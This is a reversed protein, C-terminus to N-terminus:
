YGHAYVPSGGSGIVQIKAASTGAPDIAAYQLDQGATLSRHVVHPRGPLLGQDEAPVPINQVPGTSHKPPPRLLGAQTSLYMTYFVLAGGDTTKLAFMPYPTGELLWQYTQRRATAQRGIAANAAYLGTTQPGAAVAASAPSSPGDDAVAAHLPGVVNPRAKLTQDLISLSTAYGASDIAVKPAAVGPNLQVSGSLAWTSSADRKYFTMLATRAPGGAAPRVPASAMFWLPYAAQKAVYVTPPGYLMVPPASGSAAAITFASSVISYAADTTQSLALLENRDALAVRASTVYANFVQAAAAPTPGIPSTTAAANIGCGQVSLLLGLAALPGAVLKLPAPRRPFMVARGAPWWRRKKEHTATANM